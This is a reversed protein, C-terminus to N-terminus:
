SERESVPGTAAVTMLDTTPAPMGKPWFYGVVRSAPFAKINVADAQNGGLALINGSSDKGVVFAVHGSSSSPSGRWFVVVAGPVPNHLKIGWGNAYSRAMGSRTTMIGADELMAGVFGACWPTEDDRFPLKAREWYGLVRANHRSGKIEQVGIEMRARRLWVPEEPNDDIPRPNRATNFLEAETLPGIYDRPLLGRSRKFAIVASRTLPGFAGDVKGHYFGRARLATQIKIWYDKKM